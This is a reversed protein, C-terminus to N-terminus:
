IKLLCFWSYYYGLSATDTVPVSYFMKIKHLKEKWKNKDINIEM